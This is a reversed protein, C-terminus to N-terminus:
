VRGAACNDTSERKGGSQADSLMWCSEVIGRKATIEM